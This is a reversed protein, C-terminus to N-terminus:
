LATNIINGQRTVWAVKNRKLKQAIKIVKKAKKQILTINKFRDYYIHLITGRV